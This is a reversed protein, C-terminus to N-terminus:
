DNLDSAPFVQLLKKALVAYNLVMTRMAGAHDNIKLGAQKRESSLKELQKEKLGVEVMEILVSLAQRSLKFQPLLPIKKLLETEPFFMSWIKNSRIRKLVDRQNPSLRVHNAQFADLLTFAIPMEVQFPEPLTHPNKHMAGDMGPTVFQKGVSSVPILRAPIGAQNLQQIISAFNPYKMLTSRVEELIPNTANGSQGDLLDWKTIVFHTTKLHNQLYPLMFDLDQMIDTKRHALKPQGDLWARIKEGDLIVLWTDAALVNREFDRLITSGESQQETLVEGPYDFYTFNFVPFNRTEKKIHCTLNWEDVQITTPPWPVNSDRIVQFINILRRHQDPTASLYFGTEEHQVSLHQYMSALFVTKGSGETGLALTRYTPINDGM